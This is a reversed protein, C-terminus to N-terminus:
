ISLKGKGREFIFWEVNLRERGDREARVLKYFDYIM